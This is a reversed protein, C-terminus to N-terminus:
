PEVVRIPAVTLPDMPRRWPQPEDQAVQSAPGTDTNLRALEALMERDDRIM